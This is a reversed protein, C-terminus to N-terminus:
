ATSSGKEVGDADSLTKEAQVDELLRDLEVTGKEIDALSIDSRECMGRFIGDPKNFLNVPTDFEQIVM